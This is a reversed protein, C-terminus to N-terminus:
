NFCASLFATLDNTMENAQGVRRNITEHDYPTERAVVYNNEDKLAQIYEQIIRVRKANSTATDQYYFFYKDPKNTHNLHNIPSANSWNDPNKGFANLYTIVTKHYPTSPDDDLYNNIEVTAQDNDPTIGYDALHQTINYSETDFNAVGKFIDKPNLGYVALFQPEIAVLTSLHAGASHGLIVIKNKDGGYQQVHTYIHNIASAVDQPHIPFKIRESNLLDNPLGNSDVPSLRYNISFLVYGLAEFYNRKDDFQKAKDGIAWGGGHVWIVVPRPTTTESNYYVDYSILNTDEIPIDTRYQVTETKNYSFDTENNQLPPINGTDKNCGSILIVLGSLFLFRSKLVFAM